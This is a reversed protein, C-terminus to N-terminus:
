YNYSVLFTFTESSALNKVTFSVELEKEPSLSYSDNPTVVELQVHKLVLVKIQVLTVEKVSASNSQLIAKVTLNQMENVEGLSKIM